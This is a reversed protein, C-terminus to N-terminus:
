DNQEPRNAIAPALPPPQQGSLLQATFLSNLLGLAPLPPPGPQQPPAPQSADTAAFILPRVGWPFVPPLLPLPPPPPAAFIPPAWPNYWASAPM